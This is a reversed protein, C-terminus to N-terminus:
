NGGTTSGLTKLIERAAAAAEGRPGRYTPASEAVRELVNQGYATQTVEPLAYSALEMLGRAPSLRQPRWAAGKRYETRVVMGVRLPGNGVKAGMSEATQRITGNPTRLSLRRPYPHVMGDADLVAFEDSYYTAGAELLAAVLTSKGAMSRGPLIVAQDRWAVVGAHVFVCDRARQSLLSQIEQEIATLAVDREFSRILQRVGVHLLNYRREGPRAGTGGLWLSLLHEVFPSEQAVWGPPLCALVDDPVAPENLRVGISLGFSTFAVGGAWGLRDLKQM